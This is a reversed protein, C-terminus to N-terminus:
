ARDRPAELRALVSVTIRNLMADTIPHRIMPVITSLYWTVVHMMMEVMPEVIPTKRRQPKDADKGKSYVNQM